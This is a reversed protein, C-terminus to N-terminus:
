LGAMETEGLAALRPIVQEDVYWRIQGAVGDGLSCVWAALRDDTLDLRESRPAGAAYAWETIVTAHHAKMHDFFDECLEVDPVQALQAAQRPHDMRLDARIVNGVQGMVEAYNGALSRDKPRFLM